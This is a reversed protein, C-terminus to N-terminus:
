KVVVMLDMGPHVTCYIHYTGATTFPGINVSPGSLALDKLAPAGAPSSQPSATTGNWQGYDLIHYSTQDQVVKLMTGKSLTICTQEFSNTGTKVTTGTACSGTSGAPSSASGSSSTITSATGPRACAVLLMSGFTFAALLLTLTRLHKKAM